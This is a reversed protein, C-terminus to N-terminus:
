YRIRNKDLWEQYINYESKAEDDESWMSFAPGSFGGASGSGTAEKTEKFAQEILKDLIKKNM